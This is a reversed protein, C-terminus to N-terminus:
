VQSGHRFGSPSAREKRRLNSLKPNQYCDQCPSSMPHGLTLGVSLFTSILSVLAQPCWKFGQLWDQSCDIQRPSKLQLLWFDRKSSLGTKIKSNRDSTVLLTWALLLPVQVSMSLHQWCSLFISFVLSSPPHALSEWCSSLSTLFCYCVVPSSLCTIHCLILRVPCQIGQLPVWPRTLVFPNQIASVLSVCHYFFDM